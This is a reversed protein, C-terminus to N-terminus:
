PFWIEGHELEDVRQQLVTLASDVHKQHTMTENQLQSKGHELEIVRTLLHREIGTKGHRSLGEGASNELDHQALTLCFLPTCKLNM